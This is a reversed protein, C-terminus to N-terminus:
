LYGEDGTYMKKTVFGCNYCELTRVVQGFVDLKDLKEEGIVNMPSFCNDCSYKSLPASTPPIGELEALRSELESVRRPLTM